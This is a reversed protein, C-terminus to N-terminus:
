ELYAKVVNKNKLIMEYLIKTFFSYIFRIDERMKDITQKDYEDKSITMFNKWSWYEDNQIKDKAWAEGITDAYMCLVALGKKTITYKNDKVSVMKLMDEQEKSMKEIDIIMDIALFSLGKSSIEHEGMYLYQGM